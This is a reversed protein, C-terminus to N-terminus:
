EERNGEVVEKQEAATLEGTWLFTGDFYARAGHFYSTNEGAVTIRGEETYPERFTLWTPREAGEPKTEFWATRGNKRFEGGIGGVHFSPGRVVNLAFWTKGEKEVICLMGGRGDEYKGPWGKRQDLKKWARLWEIRGETISAALEWRDVATEPMDEKEQWESMHDRYEMWSRQDEQVAAFQEPDLDKKLGAYFENLEKDQKAFKAKAEALEDGSAIGATLFLMAALLSKMPRVRGASGQSPLRETNERKLM